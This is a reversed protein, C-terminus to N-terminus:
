RAREEWATWDHPRVGTVFVTHARRRRLSAAADVSIRAPSWMAGHDIEVHVDAVDPLRGVETVLAAALTPGYSCCPSTLRLRLEVRPSVDVVDVLGMALLGLPVGMANSCPDVVRDVAARVDAPSVM